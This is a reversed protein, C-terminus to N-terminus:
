KALNPLWKNTCVSLCPTCWCCVVFVNQRQLMVYTWLCEGCIPYLHRTFKRKVCKNCHYRTKRYSKNPCECCRVVPSNSAALSTIPSRADALSPVECVATIWTHLPCSLFPSPLRAKEWPMILPKALELLYCRRNIFAMGRKARNERCIIYSNICAANMMGLMVCLPWHAKTSCATGARMQDITDVGGKTANYVDTIEPKGSAALDPQTHQSSLLQELKRKTKSTKAVDSVLTMETQYLFASSGYARTYKEKMEATIEKKSARVTGVLTMGCYNLLDSILPVSTFWNDITVNRNTWATQCAIDASCM